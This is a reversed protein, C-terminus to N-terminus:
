RGPRTGSRSAAFREPARATSARVPSAARRGRRPRTASSAAARRGGNPMGPAGPPTNRRATAANRRPSSVPHATPREAWPPPDKCKVCVGAARRADYRACAAERCGQCEAAGNAPKGCKPCDGRARREAYRRRGAELRAGPNRRRREERVAACPKCYAKGGPTPTACTVCLGAARRDRNRDRKAQRRDERCPECMARGEAPPANGCRVCIGAARRAESRRRSRERDARRKAEPDRGGYPIGEAKAKAHRARDQARRTEACPECLTREPSAKAKGCKTCLGAARREAHQRRSREREYERTRGPDRRPKGEARLRATRARDAARRKELCPECLTREPVPPVKGCKLCLGAARREESREYFRELNRRRKQAINCCAM